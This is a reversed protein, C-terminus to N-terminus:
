GASLSRRTSIPSDILPSGKRPAYNEDLMMEDQTLTISTDGYSYGSAATMACNILRVGTGPYKRLVISNWINTVTGSNNHSVNGAGYFVCNVYQGGQYVSDQSTDVLDGFICNYASGQM